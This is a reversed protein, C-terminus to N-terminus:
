GHRPEKGIFSHYVQSSILGITEQGTRADPQHSTLVVLLYPRGPFLFLGADNEIGDLDGCKHALPVDEPLFRQLRGGQQQRRLVQLMWGSAAPSILTGKYISELLFAMDAACTTNDRGEELARRDMMKRELRTAALGLQRDLANVADMGLRDILLNAATNDSVIIMLTALERLTFRHGPALEKLIGDGGALDKQQVAISEELSLRGEQDQRALEALVPLKILSASPVCLNGNIAFHGGSVLDKFVTCVTGPRTQILSRISDELNM